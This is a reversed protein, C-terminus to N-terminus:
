EARFGAPLPQLHSPLCQVSPIVLQVQKSQGENAKCLRKNYYPM